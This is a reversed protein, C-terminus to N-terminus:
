PFLFNVVDVVIREFGNFDHHGDSEIKLRCARYYDEADLPDVVADAAQQIVMLSDPNSLKELYLGILCQIDAEGIEFSTKTHDNFGQGFFECMIDYGRVVPNLLVARLQYKDALYTAFYAGLSHGLLAVQRRESLAQEIIQELVALAPAPNDPLEPCLVEVNLQQANIYNELKNQRAHHSSSLFGHIHLLLKKM